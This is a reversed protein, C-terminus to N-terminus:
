VARSKGDSKQEYAPLLGVSFRVLLGYYRVSCYSLFGDSKEKKPVHDPFLIAFQRVFLPVTVVLGISLAIFLVHNTLQSAPFGMVLFRLIRFVFVLRASFCYM